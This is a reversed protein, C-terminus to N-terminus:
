VVYSSDESQHEIRVGEPSVESYPYLKPRDREVQWSQLYAFIFYPAGFYAANAKAQELAAQYSRGANM